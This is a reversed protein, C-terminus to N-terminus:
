IILNNITIQLEKNNKWFHFISQIEGLMICQKQSHVSSNLIFLCWESSSHDPWLPPLSTHCTTEMVSELECHGNSLDCPSPTRGKLKDWWCFVSLEGGHDSSNRWPTVSRAKLQLCFCFVKSYLWNFSFLLLCGVLLIIERTWAQVPSRESFM